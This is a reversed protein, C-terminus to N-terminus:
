AKPTPAAAPAPKAPASPPNAGPKADKAPAAPPTASKETPNGDRKWAKLGGELSLVDDFGEEM